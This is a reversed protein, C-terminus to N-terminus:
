DRSQPAAAGVKRVSWIVDPVDGLGHEGRQLVHRTMPTRLEQAAHDVTLDFKEGHGEPIRWIVDPLESARMDVNSLNLRFGLFQERVIVAEGLMKLNCMDRTLGPALQPVRKCSRAHPSRLHILLRTM